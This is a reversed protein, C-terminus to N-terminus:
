AVPLKALLAAASGCGDKKNVFTRDVNFEAMLKNFWEEYAYTGYDDLLQEGPQIDRVAYTSEVCYGPANCPPLGTNPAESHNWFFGDDLIENLRGEFCYVHDMFFQQREPTLEALRARVEADCTYSWVNVGPAGKPASKYKWLLTGSPIFHTAFLGKGFECDRVEYGVHFGPACSDDHPLAKPSWSPASMKALHSPYTPTTGWVVIM